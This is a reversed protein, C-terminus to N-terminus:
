IKRAFKCGCYNQRYLNLSKSIQNTKLFGDQKRFNEAFYNLGFEQAIKQGIASLKEYNKHPSIVISTTFEEIGLIKALEASKRLRLEFCKDCRAGKEPEEEYGKVSEYYVEPEYKGVVLECGFHACLTKQAELRREYEELPYINPNYFYVIVSYGM